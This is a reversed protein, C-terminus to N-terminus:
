MAPKPKPAEEMPMNARTPPPTKVLTPEVEELATLIFMKNGRMGSEKLM